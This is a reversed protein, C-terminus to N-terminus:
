FIWRLVNTPISFRMLVHETDTLTSGSSNLAYERARMFIGKVRPTQGYYASNHQVSRRFVNKYASLTVGAEALLKAATSDVVCLMGLVLHETGIYTTQYLKAAEESATIVDQLSGTYNSHNM